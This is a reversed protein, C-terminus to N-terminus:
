RRAARRVRERNCTLCYRKGNGRRGDLLHGSNCHTRSREVDPGSGPHEGRTVPILHSPNVCSRTGCIHHLEHEDPIPGVWLEYAFRHAYVSRGEVTYRGYGNNLSATWIWCGSGRLIKASFTEPEYTRKM